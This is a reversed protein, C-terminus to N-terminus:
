CDSVAWQASIGGILAYRDWRREAGGPYFGQREARVVGLLGDAHSRLSKTSNSEHIRYAATLPARILVFRRIERVAPHKSDETASIPEDLEPDHRFWMHQLLWHGALHPWARLLGKERAWDERSGVRDTDSKECDPTM